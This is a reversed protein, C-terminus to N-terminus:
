VEHAAISIVTGEGVPEGWATALTDALHDDDGPIAHSYRTRLMHESTGYRVAVAAPSRGQRLLQTIGYHRMDYLRMGEPIPLGATRAATVVRSFAQSPGDPDIVTSCDASRSFLYARGTLRIGCALANEDQARMHAAAAELTRPDLTITRKRRKETEGRRLEGDVVGEGHLSLRGTRLDLQRRTLAAVEQPRPGSAVLLSFALLERGVREYAERDDREPITVTYPNGDLDTRTFTVAPRRRTHGALFPLFRAMEAPDPCTPEREGAEPLTLGTCPNRTLYSGDRDIELTFAASLYGRIKALTAPALPQGPLSSTGNGVSGREALQDFWAALSFLDPRRAAEQRTLTTRFQWDLVRGVGPILYADLYTRVTTATTLHRAHSEWWAELIDAGTRPLDAVPAPREGRRMAKRDAAIVDARAVLATLHRALEKEPTHGPLYDYVYPDGGGPPKGAYARLQVRGDPRHRITGRTNAKPM